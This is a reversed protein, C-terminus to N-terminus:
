ASVPAAIGIHLDSQRAHDGFHPTPLAELGRKRLHEPHFETLHLVAEDVEDALVM